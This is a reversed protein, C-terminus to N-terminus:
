RNAGAAGVSQLKMQIMLDSLQKDRSDLAAQLRKVESELEARSMGGLRGSSPTESDSSPGPASARPAAANKGPNTLLWAGGAGAVFCVLAILGFRVFEGGRKKSRSRRAM